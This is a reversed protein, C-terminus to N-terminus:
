LLELASLDESPQATFTEVDETSLAHRSGLRKLMLHRAIGFLYAAVTGRQADFSGAAKLVALFTEQVVDDAADSGCMHLAYRYIPGQHRTFLDGFAQEDGEQARIVLDTEM